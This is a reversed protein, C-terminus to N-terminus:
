NSDFVKTQTEQDSANLSQAETSSQQDVEMGSTFDKYYIPNIKSIFEEASVKEEPDCEASKIREGLTKQLNEPEQGFVKDIM